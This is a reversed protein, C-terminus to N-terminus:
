LARSCTQLGTYRGHVPRLLLWTGSLCFGESPHRRQELKFVTSASHERRPVGAVELGLAM